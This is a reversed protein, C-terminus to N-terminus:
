RLIPQGNDVSSTGSIMPLLAGYGCHRSHTCRVIVLNTASRGSKRNVVDVRGHFMLAPSTIGAVYMPIQCVNDSLLM